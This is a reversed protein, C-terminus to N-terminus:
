YHVVILRHGNLIVKRFKELRAYMDPDLEQSVNKMWLLSGRYDTRAKEMAEVTLFTDQVARETFVDLDQYLRM